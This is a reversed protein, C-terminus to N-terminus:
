DSGAAEALSTVARRALRLPVAVHVRSGDDADMDVVLRGDRTEVTLLGVDGGRMEVLRADGARELSAVVGAAAPLWPAAAEHVERRADRPVATAWMAPFAALASEAISAPVAVSIHGGEAPRVDVEVTGATVVAVTAATVTAVVAAAVVTLLVLVIRTSRSM